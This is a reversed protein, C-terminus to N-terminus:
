KSFESCSRNPDFAVVSPNKADFVSTLLVSDGKLPKCKAIADKELAKYAEQLNNGFGTATAIETRSAIIVSVHYYCTATCLVDAQASLNILFLVSFIIKKM